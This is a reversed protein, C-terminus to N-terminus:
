KLHGQNARDVASGWGRKSADGGIADDGLHSNVQGVAKAWGARADGGHRHETSEPVGLGVGPKLAPIAAPLAGALVTERDRGAAELIASAQEITVDDQCILDVLSPFHKANPHASIAKIRAREQAIIEQSMEFAKQRWQSPRSNQPHVGAHYIQRAEEPQRLKWLRRHPHRRGQWPPTKRKPDHPVGATATLNM